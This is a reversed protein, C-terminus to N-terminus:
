LATKIEKTKKVIKNVNQEWVNLDDLPFYSDRIYKAIENNTFETNAWDTLKSINFKTKIEENKEILIKKKTSELDPLFLNLPLVSLLQDTTLFSEILQEKLKVTVIKKGALFANKSKIAKLAGLSIDRNYRTKCISDTDFKAKHISFWGEDNIEHYSKEIYKEYFIKTSIDRKNLALVLSFMGPYLNMMGSYVIFDDDELNNIISKKFTSDKQIENMLVFYHIKDTLISEVDNDLGNLSKHIGYKNLRGYNYLESLTNKYDEIIKKETTILKILAEKQVYKNIFLEKFCGDKFFDMDKDIDEFNVINSKKCFIQYFAWAVSIDNKSPNMLNFDQILLRIENGLSTKEFNNLQFNFTNQKENLYIFFLKCYIEKDPIFITKVYDILNEQLNKQDEIKELNYINDNFYSKFEHIKKIFEKTRKKIQNQKKSYYYDEKIKKYQTAITIIIPLIHSIIVPFIEFHVLLPITTSLIILVVVFYNFLFNM